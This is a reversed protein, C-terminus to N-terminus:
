VPLFVDPQAKFLIKFLFDHQQGQNSASGFLQNARHFNV